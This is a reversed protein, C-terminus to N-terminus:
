EDFEEDLTDRYEEAYEDESWGCETCYLGNWGEDCEAGCEPCLSPNM